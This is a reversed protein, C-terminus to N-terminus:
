QVARIIANDKSGQVLNLDAKEDPRYQALVYSFM